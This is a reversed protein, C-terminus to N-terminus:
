VEKEAIAKGFSSAIGFIIHAGFLQRYFRGYDIKPPNPHLSIVAKWIGIGAVGSVAGILAGNLFNPKLNTRRWVQEYVLDYSLGTALHISWGVPSWLNENIKESSRTHNILAALLQPEVYEDKHKVSKYYSYATMLLTSTTATALLKLFKM